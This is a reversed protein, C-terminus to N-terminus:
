LHGNEEVYLRFARGSKEITEDIDADSMATSGVMLGRTAMLVGQNLMHRHLRLMRQLYGPGSKLVFDRYTNAPQQFLQISSM